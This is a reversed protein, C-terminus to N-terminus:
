LIWVHPHDYVEQPFEPKYFVLIDVPAASQINEGFEHGIWLIYTEWMGIRDFNMALYDLQFCMIRLSLRPQKYRNIYIGRYQMIDCGLWCGLVVLFLKQQPPIIITYFFGCWWWVM